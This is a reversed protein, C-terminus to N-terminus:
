YQRTLAALSLLNQCPSYTRSAVQYFGVCQKFRRRALCAAPETCLPPGRPEHRSRACKARLSIQTYLSALRLYLRVVCNIKRDPRFRLFLCVILAVALSVCVLAVVKGLADSDCM